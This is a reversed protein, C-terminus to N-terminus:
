GRYEGSSVDSMREILCSNAEPKRVTLRVYGKGALSPIFDLSQVIIGERLFDGAVNGKGKLVVVNTESPYFEYKDSLAQELKTKASKTESRVLDMYEVDQLAVNAVLGSITSIPFQLRMKEMIEIIEPSGIGYGVQIGALGLGKSTTRTVFLNSYKGLLSVASNARKDGNADSYEGYAEDVVVLKKHKSAVSVIEEIHELPITTGTPNNPTCLWYLDINPDSLKELYDDRNSESWLFGNNEDLDSSIIRANIHAAAEEFRFFTPNHVMVFNGPTVFAKTVLELLQNSGTGITVPYKDFEGGGLKVFNYPELQFLDAITKVLASANTDPYDLLEARFLPDASKRLVEQIKSTAGWSSEGLNFKKIDEKAIGKQAYLSGLLQWAVDVPDAEGKSTYDLKIVDYTTAVNPKIRLVAALTTDLDSENIIRSM